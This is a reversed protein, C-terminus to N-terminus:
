QLDDNRHGVNWREQTWRKDIYKTAVVAVAPVGGCGMGGRWSPETQCRRSRVIEEEKIVILLLPQDRLLALDGLNFQDGRPALPVDCAVVARPLEEDESPEGSVAPQTIGIDKM